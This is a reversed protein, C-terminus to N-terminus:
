EGAVISPRSEAVNEMALALYKRERTFYTRKDYKRMSHEMECEELHLLDHFVKSYNDITLCDSIHFLHPCATELEHFIASRSGHSLVVDKLKKPVFFAELRNGVFNIKPGLSAGSVITSRNRTSVSHTYSYNKFVNSGTGITRNTQETDHVSVMIPRSIQFDGTSAGNFKITFEECAQGFIKSTAKFKYEKVEGPKLVFHASSHPSELVLQSDAKSGVLYSRLVTYEDDSTNKVMMKLEKTENVNYFEVGIEECIKIGNKNEIYKSLLKRPQNSAETEKILKVNLCRLSYINDGSVELEICEAAVRDKKNVVAKYEDSLVDWYFIIREDIFGSNETEFSTIYGEIKKIRPCEFKRVELIPEDNNDIKECFLAIRDYKRPTYNGHVIELSFKFIEDDVNVTVM